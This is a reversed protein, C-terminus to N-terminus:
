AFEAMGFRNEFIPLFRINVMNETISGVADAADECGTQYNPVFIYRFNSSSSYYQGNVDILIRIEIFLFSCVVQCPYKYVPSLLCCLFFSRNV